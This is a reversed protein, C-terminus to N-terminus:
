QKQSNEQKPAFRVAQGQMSFGLSAYFAERGPECLLNVALGRGSLSNALSVTLFGGIGKRRCDTRTEVAALYAMGGWIAYAGATAALEGKLRATWVEALGRNRKTCADSYFNGAADSGAASLQGDRDLFEVVQWLSPAADLMLDAPAAPVALEAGAALCFANMRKKPQWRAPCLGQESQLRCVGLLKLLLALEEPDAMGVAHASRGRVALAFPPDQGGGTFFQWDSGALGGFAAFHAGVFCAAPGAGGVLAALFRERASSTGTASIM